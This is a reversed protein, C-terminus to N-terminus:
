KEVRGLVSEIRFRTWPFWKVFAGVGGHIDTWVGHCAPCLMMWDEASGALEEDAAGKSRIHHLHRPQDKGIFRGCGECIKARDRYEQATFPGEEYVVKRDSLFQRWRTWYGLIEDPNTVGADALRGFLLDCHRAMEATSWKSSTRIARVRSLKDSIATASVWDVGLSKLDGLIATEVVVEVMPAIREDAMDVEYLQEATVIDEGGQHANAENALIEYLSWMLANQKLTRKLVLELDVEVEVTDESTQEMKKDARDALKRMSPWYREDVRITIGGLVDSSRPKWRGSFHAKV